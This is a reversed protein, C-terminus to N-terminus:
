LAAPTQGAAQIDGFLPLSIRGDPRVPLTRSLEPDRWVNVVLLDTEGIIYDTRGPAASQQAPTGAPQVVGPKDEAAAPLAVLLLLLLANPIARYKMEM